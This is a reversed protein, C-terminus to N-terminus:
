TKSWDELKLGPVLEFDRVNRTVVTANHELTIAAIRLDNARVGLKARVLSEFRDISPETYPLIRLRSLDSVSRALQEYAFAIQSRKKARHVLTYWGRLQEEVTIVSIAVEGPTQKDFRSKIQEHGEQLLCLIDSDLVFLSM